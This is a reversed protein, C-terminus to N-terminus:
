VANITIEGRVIVFYRRSVDESSESLLRYYYDAIFLIGGGRLEAVCESARIMAALVAFISRASKM